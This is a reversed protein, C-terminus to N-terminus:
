SFSFRLFGVRSLTNLLNPPSFSLSFTGNKEKRFFLVGDSPRKLWFLFFVFSVPNPREPRSTMGVM